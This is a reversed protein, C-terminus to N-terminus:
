HIFIRYISLKIKMVGYKAARLIYELKIRPLRKMFALLGQEKIIKLNVAINIKPWLENVQKFYISPYDNSLLCSSVNNLNENILDATKGHALEVQYDENMVTPIVEYGLISKKSLKCRIIMSQQTHETNYDMIKRDFVFNGLSYAILSGGVKEIGNLVHPHHGLILSVGLKAIRHCLKRHEPHPYDVFEVGAHLSVVIHDVQKKLLSVDESIHEYNNWAAGPQENSASHIGKMSYALFGVRIGKKEIIMHSRASALDRGAGVHGIKWQKMVNITDIIGDEGFDMIHNNALSLVNFGAGAVAEMGRPNCKLLHAQGSKLTRSKTFVNELNAFVIDGSQLVHNILTFPHHIGNSKMRDEVANALSLDGAACLTVVEDKDEIAM